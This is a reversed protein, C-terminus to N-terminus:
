ESQKRFRVGLIVLVIMALGLVPVLIGNFEPIDPLNDVLYIDAIDGLNVDSLPLWYPDFSNGPGVTANTPLVGMDMYEPWPDYILCLDDTTDLLTDNDDYGSIVKAHGEIQRDTLPPLNPSQNKPWGGHDLWLVPHGFALYQVLKLPTMPGNPNMPSFDHQTFAGVSWLFSAQVETAMGGTGDFMGVGHTTLISDGVALEGVSKGNDYIDDQQIKVGIQGRYAAIMAISAPACYCSCHPCDDGTGYVGDPGKADNWLHAGGVAPCSPGDSVCPMNTDRHQYVLMLVLSIKTESSAPLPDITKSPVQIFAVFASLSIVLALAVITVQVLGKRPRRGSIYNRRPLAGLLPRHDATFGSVERSKGQPRIGRRM